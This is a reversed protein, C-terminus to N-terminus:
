EIELAGFPELCFQHAMTPARYLFFLLFIRGAPKICYGNEGSSSFFRRPISLM